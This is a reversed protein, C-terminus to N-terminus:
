ALQGRNICWRTTCAGRCWSLSGTRASAGDPGAAIDDFAQGTTMMLMSWTRWILARLPRVALDRPRM